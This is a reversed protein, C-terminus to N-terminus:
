SADRDEQAVTLYQAFEQGFVDRWSAHVAGAIVPMALLIGLGAPVMALAFIVYVAVGTLALAPLNRACARLSLLMSELPAVDNLMVLAPAFWLAMVLLVWLLYFLAGGLLLGGVAAGLAGLSGILYAALATVGGSLLAMLLILAGGLAYFLSLVLLNGTNRRLGEFLHGVELTGTRDLRECGYIMGACFVPFAMLILLSGIPQLLGLVGIVAIFILTQMVWVAPARLFLRWGASFWQIVRTVSVHAPSPPLKRPM